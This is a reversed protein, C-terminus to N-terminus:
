SLRFIPVSTASNTLSTGLVSSPISAQAALTFNHAPWVNLVVSTQAGSPGQWGIFNPMAAGSVVLATVWYYNGATKTFSGTLAKAYATNASAFLTTDNATSAVLTANQTAPDISYIAFQCLTPTAGAATSGTYATVTSITETKDARIIPGVLQQSVITATGNLWLRRPAFEGAAPNFSPV